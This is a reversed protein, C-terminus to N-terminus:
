KVNEEINYALEISKKNVIHGKFTKSYSGYRTPEVPTTEWVGEVKANALIAERQAILHLKINDKIIKEMKTLCSQGYTVPLGYEYPDYDRVLDDIKELMSLVSPIETKNM